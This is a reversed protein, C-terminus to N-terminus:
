VSELPKVEETEKVARAVDEMSIRNEPNSASLINELVSISAAVEVVDNSFMDDLLTKLSTEVTELASRIEAMTSAINSSSQNQSELKIYKDVLDCIMGASHDALSRAKSRDRPDEEVERAINSLIISIRKVSSAAERDRIKRAQRELIVRYADLRIATENKLRNKEKEAEARSVAAQVKEKKVKKKKRSKLVAETMFIATFGFLMLDINIDIGFIGALLGGVLGTAIGGAILFVWFLGFWKIVTLFTKFM